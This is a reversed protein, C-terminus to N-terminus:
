VFLSTNVMADHEPQPGQIVKGLKQGAKKISALPAEHNMKDLGDVLSSAFAVKSDVLELFVPHADRDRIRTRCNPCNPRASEKFIRIKCDICLGHGAM